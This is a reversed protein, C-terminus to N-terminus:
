SFLATDPLKARRIEDATPYRLIELTNGEERWAILGADRFQGLWYEMCWRQWKRHFYDANRLIHVFHPYPPAHMPHHQHYARARGLWFFPVRADHLRWAFDTEEGGYGYFAEDMGGARWYDRRGLAFSLGWLSGPDPELRRGEKPMTPRAPHSKGVGDLRLYDLPTTVAGAPLYFVEGLYLGVRESLAQRYSEVLSPSPICDVDLFILVENNAAQAARNRAKALPMIEDDIYVERVPFRTEPLHRHPEPQMYAVILEDPLRTQRTLGHILNVLHERRGRVLTLVSVGM